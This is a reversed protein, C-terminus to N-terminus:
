GATENRGNLFAMYTMEGSLPACVIAVAIDQPFEINTDALTMSQMDRRQEPLFFFGAVSNM